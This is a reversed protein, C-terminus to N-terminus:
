CCSRITCCCACLVFSCCTIMLCSYTRLFLQNMKYQEKPVIAVVLMCAANNRIHKPLSHFTAVINTCSKSGTSSVGVADISLSVLQDYEEIGCKIYRKFFEGDYIDSITNDDPKNMSEWGHRMAKAFVKTAYLLRIHQEISLYMIFNCPVARNGVVRFRPKTCEACCIVCVHYCILM